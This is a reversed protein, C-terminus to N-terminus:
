DYKKECQLDVGHQNLRNCVQDLVSIIFAEADWFTDPSSPTHKFQVMLEHPLDVIKQMCEGAEEVTEHSPGISQILQAMSMPSNAVACHIYGHGFDVHLEIEALPRDEAVFGGKIRYVQKKHTAM